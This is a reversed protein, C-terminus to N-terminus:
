RQRQESLWDELIVGAAAQDIVARQRKESMGAARLRDRATVTSLTEDQYHVPLGSAEALADGVQRAIRCGDGESGDDHLPLGVVIAETSADVAREMLAAVDKKVGKRALTFRPVPMGGSPDVAAVGITRRGVDLGVVVAM